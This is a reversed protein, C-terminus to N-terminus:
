KRCVIKAAFQHEAVTVKLRGNAASRPPQIMNGASNPSTERAAGYLSRDDASTYLRLRCISKSEPNQLFIETYMLRFLAFFLAAPFFCGHLVFVLSTKYKQHSKDNYCAARKERRRAVNATEAVTMPNGILSIAILGVKDDRFVAIPKARHRRAIAPLTVASLM